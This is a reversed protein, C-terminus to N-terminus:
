WLSLHFANTVDFAAALTWPQSLPSVHLHRSSLIKDRGCDWLFTRINQLINIFAFKIM